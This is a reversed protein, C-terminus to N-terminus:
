RSLSAGTLTHGDGLISYKCSDTDLSPQLTHVQETVTIIHEGSKM